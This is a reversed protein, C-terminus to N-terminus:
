SKSNHCKLESEDQKLCFFKIKRLCIIIVKCFEFLQKLYINLNSGM